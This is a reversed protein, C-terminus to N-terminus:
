EDRGTIITYEMNKPYNIRKGKASLIANVESLM